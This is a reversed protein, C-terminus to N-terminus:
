PQWYFAIGQGPLAYCETIGSFQSLKEDVRVEQGQMDRLTLKIHPITEDEQRVVGAMLVLQEDPLFVAPTERAWGNEFEERM